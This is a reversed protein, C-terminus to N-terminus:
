AQTNGYMTKTNTTVGRAVNYLPQSQLMVLRRGSMALAVVTGNSATVGIGGGATGGSASTQVTGRVDGRVNTAAVTDAAVWGQSATMYAGNWCVNVYEWKDSRVCFGYVDSTGAVYNHADAFQPIISVIYKFTKKSWGTSAGAAVTVLESTAMGYCDYANVLFNGGTAGADASSIQVGRSLAQTPDLLLSVGVALYPLAATPTPFGNESPGWLNGLGIPAAANTAQPADALTLLTASDISAITTLLCTTGAANGVGGIVLPMNTQFNNTDAVTIQKAGSVINGFAFGFDLALGTTVVNGSNLMGFGTFPIIPVNLTIGTSAVALTMATGNLANQAAAINNTQVTAPIVDASAFFPLQFQGPVSGYYGVVKDKPYFFRIDPDAIGMFFMSPGRDDNPDPIVVSASQGQGPASLIQGMNGYAHIPGSQSAASM